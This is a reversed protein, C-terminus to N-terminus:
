QFGPAIDPEGFASITGSLDGIEDITFQGSWRTSGTRAAAAVFSEDDAAVITYSYRGGASPVTPDLLGLAALQSLDDTYTRNELWYLREAAWIARLRAGAVDAHSQEMSRTFTPASLSVLVAIIAVVIMVEM